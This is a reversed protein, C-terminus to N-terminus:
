ITGRLMLYNTNEFKELAKTILMENPSIIYCTAGSGSMGSHSFINPHANQTHNLNELIIKIEPVQAIAPKQLDNHTQKLWPFLNHVNFDNIYDIPESYPKKLAMFIDKTSTQIRPNILGIYLKPFHEIPTIIEGIGSMFCNQGYICVPFDAGLTLGLDMLKQQAIGLNFFQNLLKLTTAGDSSGGGVGAAIPLNKILTIKCPLKKNVYQELLCHAKVMLNNADMQLDMTNDGQIEFHIDSSPEVTIEDGFNSFVVFSDLLHYGNEKKGLVHLNLNIKAPAFATLKAM